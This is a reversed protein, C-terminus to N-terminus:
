LETVTRVLLDKTVMDPKTLNVDAGFVGALDSSAGIIKVDSLRARLKQIVLSGDEGNRSSGLNGDVIAVDVDGAKLTDIVDGAETVNTARAVISHGGSQLWRGYLTQLGPEDEIVAVRAEPPM